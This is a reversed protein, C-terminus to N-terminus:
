ILPVWSSTNSETAVTASTVTVPQVGTTNYTPAFAQAVAMEGIAHAEFPSIMSVNVKALRFILDFIGKIAAFTTVMMSGFAFSKISPFKNIAKYSVLSAILNVVVDVLGSFKGANIAGKIAGALAGAGLGGVLGGFFMELMEKSMWGPIRISIAQEEIALPGLKMNGGIFFANIYNFANSM